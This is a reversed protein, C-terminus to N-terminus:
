LLNFLFIMTLLIMVVIVDESHVLITCNGVTLLVLEPQCYPGSQLGVLLIM